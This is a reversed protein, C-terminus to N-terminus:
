GPPVGKKEEMKKKAEEINTNKEIGLKQLNKEFEDIGGVLERTAHDLERGLKNKFATVEKDEFYKQRVKLDSMKQQNAKWNKAGEQEWEKMFQRNEDMKKLSTQRIDQQLSQILLHEKQQDEWAKDQMNKKTYEFKLM